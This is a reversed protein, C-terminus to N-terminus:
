VQGPPFNKQCEDLWELVSLLQKLRMELSMRNYIQEPPLEACTKELRQLHTLTEARQREFVQASRAPLYLSLFYLRTVFEMRIARVSGGTPAELWELFRTRGRATLHLLQRSPLKEQPIEEVWIEGKAELRKLITYAQSQSLHWVHGLDTVVKRHLDYGHGPAGYLLGLLAMEPSLTGIHHPPHDAMSVWRTLIVSPITKSLGAPFAWVLFRMKHAVARSQLNSPQVPRLRSWSSPGRAQNPLVPGQRSPM